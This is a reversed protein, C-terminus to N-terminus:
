EAGLFTELFLKDRVTRCVESSTVPKYVGEPCLIPRLERHGVCNKCLGSASVLHALHIISLCEQLLRSISERRFIELRQEAWWTVPASFVYTGHAGLRGLSQKRMVSTVLRLLSLLSVSDCFHFGPLWGLLFLGVYKNFVKKAAGRKTFAKKVLSWLSKWKKLESTSNQFGMLFKLKTKLRSVSARERVGKETVTDSLPLWPGWPICVSIPSVWPSM